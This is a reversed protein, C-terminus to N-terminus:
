SVNANGGKRPSHITYSAVRNHPPPPAPPPCTDVASFTSTLHLTWGPTTSVLPPTRSDLPDWRTGAPLRDLTPGRRHAPGAAQPSESQESAEATMHCCSMVMRSQTQQPRGRGATSTWTRRHVGLLPTNKQPAQKEQLQTLAGEM